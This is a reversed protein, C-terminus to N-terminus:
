IGYFHLSCYNNVSFILIVWTVYSYRKFFISQSAQISLSSPSHFVQWIAVIHLLIHTNLLIPLHINHFFIQLHRLHGADSSRLHYSAVTSNLSWDILWVMLWDILWDAILVAWDIFWDISRWGLLCATSITTKLSRRAYNWIFFM